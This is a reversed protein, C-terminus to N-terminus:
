FAPRDMITHQLAFLDLLLLNIIPSQALSSEFGTDISKSVVRNGVFGIAHLFSIFFGCLLRRRLSIVM